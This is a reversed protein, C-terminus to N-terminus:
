LSPRSQAHSLWVPWVQTESTIYLSLPERLDFPLMRAPAFSSEIRAWPWDGSPTNIQSVFRRASFHPKSDGEALHNVAKAAAVVVELESAWAPGLVEM